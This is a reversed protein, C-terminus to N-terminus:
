IWFQWYEMDVLFVNANILLSFLYLLLAMWIWPALDDTDFQFAIGIGFWHIWLLCLCLCIQELNLWHKEILVSMISFRAVKTNCMTHIKCRAAANLLWVQVGNVASRFKYPSIKANFNSKQCQSLVWDLPMHLESQKDTSLNKLGGRIRREPSM